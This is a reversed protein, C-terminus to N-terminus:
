GGNQGSGELALGLAHVVVAVEDELAHPLHSPLGLRLEALGAAASQFLRLADVTNAANAGHKAAREGYTGHTHRCFTPLM